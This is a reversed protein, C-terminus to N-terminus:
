VVDLFRVTGKGLPGGSDVNFAPDVDVNWVDNEGTVNIQNAISGWPSDWYLKRIASDSDYLELAGSTGLPADANGCSYVSYESGPKIQVDVLSNQPIEDDKDYLRHFKGPSLEVNKITITKSSSANQITIIVWQAYAM